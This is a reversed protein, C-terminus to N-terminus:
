RLIPDIWYAEDCSIGDGADTVLLELRRVGKVSVSYRTPPVLAQIVPSSFLAIGDGKVVYVVSGGDAGGSDDLGTSFEFVSWREDHLDYVLRSQAHAFIFGKKAISEGGVSLTLRPLKDAHSTIVGFGSTASIPHSFQRVGIQSRLSAGTVFDVLTATCGWGFEHVSWVAFATGFVCTWLAAARRVRLGLEARPKQPRDSFRQAWRRIATNAPHEVLLFFVASLLASVLFLLIAALRKDLNAIRAEFVFIIFSFHILYFAYSSRGLFVFTRSSLVRGLVTRESMLGLYMVCVFTPLVLNNLAMGMPHHIPLDFGNTLATMWVLVLATGAVGLHTLKLRGSVTLLNPHRLLAHGLAMGVMFEFSRGFFTYLAVFNFNGFFGHYALHSGLLLLLGAVVYLLIQVAVHGIRRVVVFLFPALFYFTEEVTLSWSPAIGDFKYDDFFGKWLTVNLLASSVTPAHQNSAVQMFYTIALLCLYLPYIKGIRRSVYPWWFARNLNARKSYNYTILFGSLVYFLTVGVHCQFFLKSLPGTCQPDIAYHHLFVMYAAIARMGTLAPFKEPPFRYLPEKTSV